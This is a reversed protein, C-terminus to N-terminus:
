EESEGKGLTYFKNMVEVILKSTEIENYINCSDFKEQVWEVFQANTM